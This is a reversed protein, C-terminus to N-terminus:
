LAPTVVSVSYRSCKITARGLPWARPAFFFSLGASRMPLVINNSLAPLQKRSWTTSNQGAQMLGGFASLPMWFVRSPLEISVMRCITAAPAPMVMNGPRDTSDELM